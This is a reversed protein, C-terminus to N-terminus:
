IFFYLAFYLIIMLSNFWICDKSYLESERNKKITISSNILAPLHAIAAIVLFIIRNPKWFMALAIMLFGVSCVFWIAHNENRFYGKRVLYGIM